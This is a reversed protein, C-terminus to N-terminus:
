DIFWSDCNELIRIQAPVHNFIYVKIKCYIRCFTITFPVYFCLIKYFCVILYMPVYSYLYPKWYVPLYRSFLYGMESWYKCKSGRSFALFGFTKPHKWPINFLPMAWCHTSIFLKFIIVNLNNAILFIITHM